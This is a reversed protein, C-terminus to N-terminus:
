RGVNTRYTVPGWDPIKKGGRKVNKMGWVYEKDSKRDVYSVGEYVTKDPQTVSWKLTLLGDRKSWEGHGQAGTSNYLACAVRGTEPEVSIIELSTFVPQGEIQSRLRFSM